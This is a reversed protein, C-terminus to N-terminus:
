LSILRSLKACGVACGCFHEGRSALLFSSYKCCSVRTHGSPHGTPSSTIFGSCFFHQEVHLSFLLAPSLCFFLHSCPCVLVLVFLSTGCIWFRPSSLFLDGKWAFHQLATGLSGSTPGTKVHEWASLGETLLMATDLKCLPYSALNFHGQCFPVLLPAQTPTQSVTWLKWLKLLLPIPTPLGDTSPHKHDKLVGLYPQTLGLECLVCLCTQM